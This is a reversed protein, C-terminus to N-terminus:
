FLFIAKVLMNESINKLPMVWDAKSLMANPQYHPKGEGAM